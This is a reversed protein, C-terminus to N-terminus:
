QGIIPVLQYSLSWRVPSSRATRGGIELMSPSGGGESALVEIGGGGAGTRM